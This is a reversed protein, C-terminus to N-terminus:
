HSDDDDASGTHGARRRPQPPQPADYRRGPYGKWFKSRASQTKRRRWRRILSRIGEPSLMEEPPLIPEFVATFFRVFPGIVGIGYVDHSTGVKGRLSGVWLEGVREYLLERYADSHRQFGRGNWAEMQANWGVMVRYAPKLAKKLDYHELENEIWEICRRLGKHEDESPRGSRRNRMAWFERGMQELEFRIERAPPSGKQPLTEEIRAWEAATYRFTDFPIM